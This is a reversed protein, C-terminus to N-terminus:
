QVCLLSTVTHLLSEEPRQQEVETAVQSSVEGPLGTAKRQHSRTEQAQDIRRGRRVETGARHSGFRGHRPGPGFRGRLSGRRM